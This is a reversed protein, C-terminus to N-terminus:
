MDSGAATNGGAIILDLYGDGDVDEANIGFANQYYGSHFIGSLQTFSNGNGQFITPGL